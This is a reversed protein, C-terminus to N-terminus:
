ERSRVRDLLSRLPGGAAAAARAILVTRDTREAVRRPVSGVLRAQLTGRRTAGFVVLDHDDAAAALAAAPDDAERVTTEVAVSPGSASEVAARGGAAWESAPDRGSEPTAVALVTVSADNSAAVAKAMAAAPRVHPGGAVPLLVTEVRDAIRGIREVYVDCAARRLLVDVSSGLVADSRRRQGGRWGILLAAPDMEAVARLLGDEVSRAVLIGADVPVDEPAVASARDLLAQRDGSYERIITEDSFVGFPSDHSKVVVSVIRVGGDHTRALDSATRVLQEVHEPDNVAVLVESRDM